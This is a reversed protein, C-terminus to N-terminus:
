GEKYGNTIPMRRDKGLARPTIKVGPPAQRRKYESGDVMKIVKAAVNRKFGMGVIDELSRDEEVYAKLIRDLVGYPPLTDQDTQNPKLEATPPKLLVRRPILTKGARRNMWASLEYVLTKPVDKIVAFGGAMDGYLTTYGVSMESKNGTTLVLWGFKNSLAMLINGRIRAQINEETEDPRKGKFAGKMMKLYQEFTEQIPIELLGIGLNKALSSADVSSEESTYVSPMFVGTVNKPGLAETAVSAVISSDIGGSLGVVAHRFGNKSVYDSTGLRLARLVEERRDLPKVAAALLPRRKKRSVGGELTIERVGNLGTKQREERRRTDHLRATLAAEIDVDVVILAEEFARGRAMVAGTADIIMGQGDFVLEDQGGVANNYAIIVGNDLARTSLMEERLRGKGAHYPSANINVIVEAGALSQARAPGEPYWIDECIGVGIAVGNKKFNLPTTGAGFYREEDFVGYNPLFMKHYVGAVKGEHVIAAANYIDKQRDVFGVVATVGKIKKALRSLTDINDEIFGPKLLLDEPPYGTVALEPFLVIDAGAARAKDAYAAIKAANASLNGVFTNIQAMAIRLTLM